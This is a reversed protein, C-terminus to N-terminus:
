SKDHNEETGENSNQLLVKTPLEAGYGKWNMM